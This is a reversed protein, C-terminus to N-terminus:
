FERARNLLDIVEQDSTQDFVDYWLGVAQFPEPTMACVVDDAIASLRACTEAAGVPAAVVIRAPNSQRAARV